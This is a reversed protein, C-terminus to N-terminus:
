ICMGQVGTAGRGGGVGVGVVGRENGGGWTDSHGQSLDHANEIGILDGVRVKEEFGYGQQVGPLIDAHYEGGLGKVVQVWLTIDEVVAVNGKPVICLRPIISQPEDGTSTGVKQNARTRKQM